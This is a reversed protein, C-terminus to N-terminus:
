KGKQFDFSAGLSLGVSNIWLSEPVDPSLMVGSPPEVVISPWYRSMFNLEVFFYNGIIAGINAAAGGGEGSLKYPPRGQDIPGYARGSSLTTLRVNASFYLGLYEHVDYQAGIGLYTERLSARASLMDTLDGDLSSLLFGTYAQILPSCEPKPTTDCKQWVDQSPDLLFAVEFGLSPIARGSKWSKTEFPKALGTQLSLDQVDPITPWDGARTEGIGMALMALVTLFCMNRM